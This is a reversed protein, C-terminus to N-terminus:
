NSPPILRIKWRGDVKKGHIECGSGSNIVDLMFKIFTINSDSFDKNIADIIRYVEDRISLHIWKNILHFGRERQRQRYTSQNYRAQEPSLKNM